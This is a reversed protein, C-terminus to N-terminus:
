LYAAFGPLLRSLWARWWNTQARVQAVVTARDAPCYTTVREATATATGADGPPVGPGDNGAPLDGFGGNHPGDAPDARYREHQVAAVLRDCAAQGDADLVPALAAGVESETVGPGFVVGLDALDYLMGQWAAEASTDTDRGLLMPWWAGEVTPEDPDDNPPNDRRKRRRRRAQKRRRAIFYRSAVLPGLILVFIGVLLWWWWAPITTSATAAEDEAEEAEAPAPLQPDPLPGASDTGPEDATTPADASPTVAPAVPPTGSPTTTDDPTTWSPVGGVHSSPTPEFRVWGSGPFFLEPWAHAEKGTVVWTGDPLAKGPLYGVVVRAPIDLARAMLAMTSAFHVCYGQRTTLFEELASVSTDRGVQLSYSYGGNQRFYSQLAVAAEFMTKDEGLELATTVLQQPLGPPLERWRDFAAGPPAATALAGPQPTLTVSEVTYVDHQATTVGSGLINLTSQEWLWDGDIDVRRPFDPVPLFTSGGLNEIQVKTQVTKLDNVNSVEAPAPLGNQVANGQNIKGTAPAFTDGNHSDVVALRLPAPQTASTTYRLMERDSQDGLSNHLNFMPNTIMITPGDSRRMLRDDVTSDMLGPALVGAGAALATIGVASVVRTMVAGPTGARAGPPVADAVLVLVVLSAVLWMFAAPPAPAILVIMPVMHQVLLAAWAALPSQLEMLAADATIAVLLVLVVLFCELGPSAPVPAQNERVDALASRLAAAGVQWTTPTPLVGGVLTNPAATLMACWVLVGLQGLLPVLGLGVLQRLVMGVALVAAGGLCCVRFWHGGAILPALATLNGCLLVLLTVMPVFRAWVM